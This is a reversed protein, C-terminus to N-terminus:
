KKAVCCDLESTIYVSYKTNSTAKGVKKRKVHTRPLSFIFLLMNCKTEKESVASNWNASVRRTISMVEGRRARLASAFTGIDISEDHLISWPWCREMVEKRKKENSFSESNM